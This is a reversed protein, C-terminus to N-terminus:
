FIEVEDEAFPFSRHGLASFLTETPYNWWCSSELVEAIRDSFRKKLVKAPIGGVVSYPPVDKTVLAGAGMVAGNGITVGNLITVRAGIWVDNGISVPKTAQFDLRRLGVGWRNAEGEYFMPHM